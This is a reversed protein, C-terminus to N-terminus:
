DKTAPFQEVQEVSKNSAKTTRVSPTGHTVQEVPRIHAPIRDTCPPVSEHEFPSIDLSLFSVFFSPFGFMELEGGVCLTVSAFDVM